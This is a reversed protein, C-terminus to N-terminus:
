ASDEAEIRGRKEEAIRELKGVVKQCIRKYDCYKQCREDKPFQTHRFLGKKINEVNEFAKAASYELLDYFGFPEGDEKLVNKNPLFAHSRGGGVAQNLSDCMVPKLGCDQASKVEYLGGFAPTLGNILEPLVLLYLPVQLQVGKVVDHVLGGSVSGTKYDLIMANGQADVDIRDIRGQLLLKKDELSIEVPEKRSHIDRPFDGSFGFSLEFYGPKFPSGSL